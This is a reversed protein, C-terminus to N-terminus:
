SFKSNPQDTRRCCAPPGQWQRECQWVLLRYEQALFLQTLLHAIKGINANCGLFKNYKIVLKSCSPPNNAKKPFEHLSRNHTIYSSYLLQLPGDCYEIYERKRADYNTMNINTSTKLVELCHQIYGTAVM